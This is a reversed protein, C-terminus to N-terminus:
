VILNTNMQRSTTEFEARSPAIDRVALMAGREVGAAGCFREEFGSAVPATIPVGPFAASSLVTSTFM